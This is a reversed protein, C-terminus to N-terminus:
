DFVLREMTAIWDSLQTQSKTVGHVAVLWAERDKVDGPTQEFEYGQTPSAIWNDRRGDGGEGGAKLREWCWPVQVLFLGRFIFISFMVSLECRGRHEEGM